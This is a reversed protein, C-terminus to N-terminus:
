AFASTYPIGAAKIALRIQMDRVALRRRSACAAKIHSELESADLNFTKMLRRKAAAMSFSVFLRVVVLSCPCETLKNRDSM